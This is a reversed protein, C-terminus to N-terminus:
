IPWSNCPSTISLLHLFPLIYACLYPDGSHEDLCREVLDVLYESETCKSHFYLYALTGSRLFGFGKHLLSLYFCIILVCKILYQLSPTYM